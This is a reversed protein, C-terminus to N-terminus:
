VSCVRVGLKPYELPCVRISRQLDQGLDDAYLDHKYLTVKVNTQKDNRLGIFADRRTDIHIAYKGLLLEKSLNISDSLVFHIDPFNAEPSESLEHQLVGLMHERCIEIGVRITAGGILSLDIFCSKKNKAGVYFLHNSHPYGDPSDTEGVPALKAHSGVCQGTQFVFCVNRVITKKGRCKAVEAVQGAHHYLKANAPMASWCRERQHLWDLALYARTVQEVKEEFTAQDAEEYHRAYKVTGAIIILQPYVETLEAFAVKMADKEAVTVYGARPAIGHEPWTIIWNAKPNSQQLAQAILHIRAVVYGVQQLVPLSHFAEMQRYVDRIALQVVVVSPCSLSSQRLM